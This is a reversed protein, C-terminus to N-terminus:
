KLSAIRRCADNKGQDCQPKLIKKVRAVAAKAKADDKLKAYQFALTECADLVSNKCADELLALGEERHGAKLEMGALFGCSAYHKKKCANSFIKKAEEPRGARYEFVGLLRCGELDKMDCGKELFKKGNEKDGLIDMVEGQKSCAVPYGRDCARAFLTAATRYHGNEVRGEGMRVWHKAFAQTGKKLKAITDVTGKVNGCAKEYGAKCSNQLAVLAGEYDGQEALTAGLAFGARLTDGLSVAKEFFKQAVALEGQSFQRDGSEYCTTSDKCEVKELSEDAAFVNMSWLCVLVVCYRFM